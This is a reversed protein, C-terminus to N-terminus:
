SRPPLAGRPSYHDGPKWNRIQLGAQIEEKLLYLEWRNLVNESPVIPAFSARYISHFITLEIEGPIPLSLNFQPAPPHLNQPEFLLDGFERRIRM